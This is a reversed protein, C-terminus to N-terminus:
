SLHLSQHVESNDQKEQGIELEEFTVVRTHRKGIPQTLRM